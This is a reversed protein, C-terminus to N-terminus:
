VERNPTCCTRSMVDYSFVASTTSEKSIPAANSGSAQQITKRLNQLAAIKNKYSETYPGISFDPISTIRQIGVDISALLATEMSSSSNLFYNLEEDQFLADDADTDALRLRLQMLKDTSLLLVDYTFAM